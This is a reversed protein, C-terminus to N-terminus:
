TVSAPKELARPLGAAPNRKPPRQRARRAREQEAREETMRGAPYALGTVVVRGAALDVRVQDVRRPPPDEPPADAAAGAARAALDWVSSPARTKPPPAFEARRQRLLQEVQLRIAEGRDMGPLLRQEWQPSPEPLTVVRARKRRDPPLRDTM